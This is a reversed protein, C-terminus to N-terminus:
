RARRAGVAIADADLPFGMTRSSSVDVSLDLDAVYEVGARRPPKMRFVPSRVTTRIPAPMPAVGTSAQEVRKGDPCRRPLDPPNVSGVVAALMRKGRLRARKEFSQGAAAAVDAVARWACSVPRNEIEVSRVSPCDRAGPRLCRADSRTSAPRRM